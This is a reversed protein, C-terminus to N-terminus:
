HKSTLFKCKKNFGIAHFVDFRCERVRCGVHASLATLVNLVAIFFSFSISDMDSLSCIIKNWYQIIGCDMVPLDGASSSIFLFNM